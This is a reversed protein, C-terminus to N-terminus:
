LIGLEKTRRTRKSRPRRQNPQLAVTGTEPTSPGHTAGESPHAEGNRLQPLADAEKETINEVPNTYASMVARIHAAVAPNGPEPPRVRMSFIPLRNDDVTLRVYCDHARQSTLDTESVVGGLEGVLHRADSNAVRFVILGRCNAMITSEMTPSLDQLRALTQTALVYSAGFKGLESLASEYDVGPIAQFEDVLILVRRRQDSPLSGQQQIVSALLNLLVGGVLGAVNRGVTGQATSVLLVKGERIIRDLNITSRRQGLISRAVKSSSYYSLRTEVPAMAEYRQQTPWRDFVERWWRSIYPDQVQKLVDRRFEPNQLMLSVDLLTYQADRDRQQNAEHLSKLAHDLITQMRPGWHDESIHRLVGIIIDATRDRDPFLANDLVNIGPARNKDALDILVTEGVSDEPVLGLLDAVLDAHPDVVVIADYDRGQAKEQLKYAVEHAMMTSKGMGTGAVLLRHRRLVEDPMFVERGDYSHGVLGGPPRGNGDGLLVQSPAPILKAGGREMRPVKDQNVPLHWMAAVERAGLIGYQGFREVHLSKLSPNPVRHRIRGVKIRSGAPNDYQRYADVVGSLLERAREEPSDEPLIATLLLHARFGASSIKDEILQPDPPVRNGQRRRWWAWAPALAVTSIGLTTLGWWDGTLYFFLSLCGLGMGVLTVFPLSGKKYVADQEARHHSLDQYRAGWDTGLRNLLLESVLCEGPRIASLSGLVTVFPDAGSILPDDGRPVRLSLYPPGNFRLPVTWAREGPGPRVPDDEPAVEVIRIQPYLASLQVKARQGDQCRVTLTAGSASAVLNLSFADCKPFSEIFRSIGQLSREGTRPPTVELLIPNRYKNHRPM